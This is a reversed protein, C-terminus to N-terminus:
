DRKLDHWRDNPIFNICMQNLHSQKSESLQKVMGKAFYSQGLGPLVRDAASMGKRIAMPTSKLTGSYCNSRVKMLANEGVNRLALFDHLDRIGPLSSYKQTVTERWCRVIRGNDFMVTAHRQMVELFERENFIDSSYFDRATLSFLQDPAFKTHGAVMFSIRFYDLINQQVVEMTAAMMFQNKNTSGANDMFVHVRRVWDPVNGSSKLYHLLYSVTILTKRALQKMLSICIVM